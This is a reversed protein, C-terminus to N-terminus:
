KALTISGTCDFNASGDPNGKGACTGSGKAGTFKGTGGTVMWKNSGSQLVKNASTGTFDYSIYIKDGNAMTEVFMGHGKATSGSSELFETSTGEKDAIGAIEGKTATCKGQQLIYMHDPTDGVPLAHVPNPPACKWSSAVKVATGTQAHTLAVVACLAASLAIIVRTM